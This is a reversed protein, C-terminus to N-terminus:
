NRIFDICTDDPVFELDYGNVNNTLDLYFYFINKLADRDWALSRSEKPLSELMNSHNKFILKNKIGHKLFLIKKLRANRPWSYINPNSNRFIATSSMAFSGNERYILIKDDHIVQANKKLWLRSITTKGAGSKGLFAYGDLGDLVACAHFAFKHNNTLVKDIILKGLRANLWDDEKRWLYIDGKDMNSNLVAVMKKNRSSPKITVIKTNNNEHMSWFKNDVRLTFKKTNIDPFRSYQETFVAKPKKKDVVQFRLKDKRLANKSAEGRVCINIGVLNITLDSYKM